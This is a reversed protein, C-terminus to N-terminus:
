SHLCGSLYRVHHWATTHPRVLPAAFQLSKLFVFAFYFCGKSLAEFSAMVNLFLEESFFFLVIVEWKTKLEAPPEFSSHHIAWLSNDSDYFRRTNVPLGKTGVCKAPLERLSALLKRAVEWVVRRQPPLLLQKVRRLEKGLFVVCRKWRFSCSPNLVSTYNIAWIPIQGSGWPSVICM